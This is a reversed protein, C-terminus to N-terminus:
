THGRVTGPCFQKGCEQTKTEYKARNGDAMMCQLGDNQAPPNDCVRTKYQLGGDCSATCPGYSSPWDGWSGDM